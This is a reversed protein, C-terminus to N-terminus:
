IQQIKKHRGDVFEFGFGDAGIVAGSHIIVHAGIRTRERITVNPYILCSPGITTEHGVFSGAGIVTNDGIMTNAEIVAHPQVSVDKGFKASPDVVASPHVGPAFAIPKPAFKLVVQEFAKSPNAVRVQAAATKESFDLPVFVASARTKRLRALYRPDAYFTIEGSVAESLSAAGIIKQAPDGQVEGACMEALENLTFTLM